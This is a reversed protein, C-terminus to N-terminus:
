AMPTAPARPRAPHCLLKSARTVGSAAAATYSNPDLLYGTKDHSFAVLFRTTKPHTSVIAVLFCISLMRAHCPLPRKQMLPVCTRAVSQTAEVAAAGPWVAARGRSAATSTGAGAPRVEACLVGCLQLRLGIRHRRVAGLQYPFAITRLPPVGGRPPSCGLGASSRQLPRESCTCCRSRM